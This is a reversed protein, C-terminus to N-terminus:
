AAAALTPVLRALDVVLLPEGDREVVGRGVAAWASDRSLEAPLSTAAFPAVDELSDVIVAYHHGDVQTIVARGATGGAPSLGLAVRTDLVTVVRSRLAALGRVAAGARPVPTIEGIDVVSEIADTDIAVGRGALHAILYLKQTM